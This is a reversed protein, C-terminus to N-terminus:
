THQSLVSFKSHKGFFNFIQMGMDKGTYIKLDERVRVNFISLPGPIVMSYYRSHADVGLYVGM